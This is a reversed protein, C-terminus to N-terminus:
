WILLCPTCLAQSLLDIRTLLSCLRHEHWRSARRYAGSVRVLLVPLRNRRGRQYLWEIDHLIRRTFTPQPETAARVSRPCFPVKLSSARM